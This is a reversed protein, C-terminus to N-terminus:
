VLSIDFDSRLTNLGLFSKPKKDPAEFRWPCWSPARGRQAEVLGPLVRETQLNVSVDPSEPGVEDAMTQGAPPLKRLARQLPQVTDEPPAQTVHPSTNGASVVDM